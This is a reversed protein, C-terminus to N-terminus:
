MRGLLDAKKADFEEPIIVGQDRLEALRRIQEPIEAPAQRPEFALGGRREVLENRIWAELAEGDSKRSASVKLRTKDPPEATVSVSLRHPERMVVVWFLWVVLFAGLTLITLALGILVLLGNPQDKSRDNSYLLEDETSQKLGYGPKYNPFERAIHAQIAARCAHGRGRVGYGDGLRYRIPCTLVARLVAYRAGGSRAVGVSPGVGGQM